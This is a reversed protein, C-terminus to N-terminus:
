VLIPGVRFGRGGKEVGLLEISRLPGLGGFRGVHGVAAEGGLVVAAEADPVSFAGVVAHHVARIFLVHYPLKCIRKPRVAQFDHEVVGNQIRVVLQPGVLNRGRMYSHHLLLE